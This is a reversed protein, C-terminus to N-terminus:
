IEVWIQCLGSWHKWSFALVSRSTFIRFYQFGELCISFADKAAQYFQYLSYYLYVMIILELRIVGLIIIVTDLLIIILDYPVLLIRSLDTIDEYLESSDIVLDVISEIIPNFLPQAMRMMAPNMVYDALFDLLATLITSFAMLLSSTLLGLCIISLPPYAVSTFLQTDSKM